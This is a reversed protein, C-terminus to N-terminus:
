SYGNEVIKIEKLHYDVPGEVHMGRELDHEIEAPFGLPIREGPVIMPIGPPYLYVYEASVQNECNQLPIMKTKMGDIQWVPYVMENELQNEQCETVETKPVTCLRQDIQILAQALRQFGEQKDCLSCLALVYQGAAMELELHYQERLERHLDEGTYHSCQDTTILIKSEDYAYADSFDEETMVKLRQLNKVQKQFENIYQQLSYFRDPEDIAIEWSRQAGAMLLYSPSSTEFINLYDMTRQYLEKQDGVLLMATQTFAPLTKHLSMIVLDAGQRIANEPFIPSLGFHAGHAEDVILVAGAQHVVKSISTIDSVVGDYTPSTIVVAKIEPECELAKTVQDVTISSGIGARLKQPYLYFPNLHRLQIAHYVSKHCNRAVLIQDGEHTAAYISSLLGVTSGNVLIAAHSAGYIRAGEEQIEKLIGEPHHLNDFDDIETIDLMYPNMWEEIQRKHGPMHFPYQDSIELKKLKNWLSDAM